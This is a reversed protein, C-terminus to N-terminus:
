TALAEAMNRPILRSCMSGVWTSFLPRILLLDQRLLCPAALRGREQPLHTMISGWLGADMVWLLSCAWAVCDRSEPGQYLGDARLHLFGIHMLDLAPLILASCKMQDVHAFLALPGPAM